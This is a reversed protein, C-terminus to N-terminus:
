KRLYRKVSHQSSIIFTQVTHFLAVSSRRIKSKVSCLSLIEGQTRTVPCLSLVEHQTWTVPCVTLSKSQLWHGAGVLWTVIRISTCGNDLRRIYILVHNTYAKVPRKRDHRSQWKQKDTENTLRGLLDCKSRANKATKTKWTEKTLKV